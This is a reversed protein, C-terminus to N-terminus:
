GYVFDVLYGQLVIFHLHKHVEDCSQRSHFSPSGINTEMPTLNKGRKNQSGVM